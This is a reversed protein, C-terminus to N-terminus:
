DPGGGKKGKGERTIVLTPEGWWLPSVNPKALKRSKACGVGDKADKGM